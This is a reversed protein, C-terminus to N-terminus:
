LGLMKELESVLLRSKDFCNDKVGYQCYDHCLSYKYTTLLYVSVSNMSMLGDKFYNKEDKSYNKEDKSYKKENVSNLNLKSNLKSNLIYYLNRFVYCETDVLMVDILMTTHYSKVFESVNLYRKLDIKDEHVLNYSFVKKEILKSLSQELGVCVIKM